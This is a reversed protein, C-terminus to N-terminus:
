INDKALETCARLLLQAANPDSLSIRSALVHANSTPSWNFTPNKVVATREAYVVAAPIVSVHTRTGITRDIYFAFVFDCHAANPHKNLSIQFGKRHIKATKLSIHIVRASGEVRWVVDVTENQRKPASLNRLGVQAALAACNAMETTQNPNLKPNPSDSGFAFLFQEKTWRKKERVLTTLKEQMRCLRSEDDFGVVYRNDGYSDDARIRRHPQLSATHIETANAYLFVEDVRVQPVHNFDAKMAARAGEMDDVTFIVGLLILTEYKGGAGGHGQAVRLNVPADSDDRNASKVQIGAHLDSEDGHTQAIYDASLGDPLTEIQLAGNPDLMRLAAETASAEYWNTQECGKMLASQKASTAVKEAATRPTARVNGSMIDNFRIPKRGIICLKRQSLVVAKQAEWATEDHIVNFGRHQAEIVQKEYTYQGTTIRPVRRSAKRAKKDNNHEQRTKRKTM